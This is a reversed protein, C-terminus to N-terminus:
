FNTQECKTRQTMRETCLKHTELTFSIAEAKYSTKTTLGVQKGGSCGMLWTNCHEHLAKYFNLVEDNAFEDALEDRYIGASFWQKTNLIMNADAVM